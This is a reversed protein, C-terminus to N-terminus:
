NRTRLYFLAFVTSISGLTILIPKVTTAFRGPPDGKFAQPASKRLSRIKQLGLSDSYGLIDSQFQQGQLNIPINIARLYRQPAIREYSIEVEAILLTNQSSSDLVFSPRWKSPWETSIAKFSAQNKAFFDTLLHQYIVENSDQGV